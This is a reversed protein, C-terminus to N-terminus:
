WKPRIQATVTKNVLDWYQRDENLRRDKVEENFVSALKPDTKLSFVVYQIAEELHHSQYLMEMGIEYALRATLEESALENRFQEPTYSVLGPCTKTTCADECDDVHEDSICYNPAFLLLVALYFMVIKM